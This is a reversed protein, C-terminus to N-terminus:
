ISVELQSMSQFMEKSGKKKEIPIVPIEVERGQGWLRLIGGWTVMKKARQLLDYSVERYRQTGLCYPYNSLM